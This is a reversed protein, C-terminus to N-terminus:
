AGHRLRRIALSQSGAFLAVDAAVALLAVAVLLSAGVSSLSAVAVAGLLNVGMVLRLSTRLPVWALLGVISAAWIVVVAGALSIVWAPLPLGTSITPAALAVAVGVVACYAADLRLSLRGIREGSWTTM